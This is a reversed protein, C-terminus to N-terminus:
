PQPFCQKPYHAFGNPFETQGQNLKNQIMSNDMNAEQSQGPRRGNWSQSIILLILNQLAYVLNPRFNQHLKM